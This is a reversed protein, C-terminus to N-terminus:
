NSQGGCLMKIFLNVKSTALALENMLDICVHLILLSIGICCIAISSIANILPFNYKLM